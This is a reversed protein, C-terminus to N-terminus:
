LKIWKPNNSEFVKENADSHLKDKNSSSLERKMKILEQEKRIMEKIGAYKDVLMQNKSIEVELKNKLAALKNIDVRHEEHEIKIKDISSRLDSLEAISEAIYEKLGSLTTKEVEIEKEIEIRENIIDSSYNKTNYLLEKLAKEYESLKKETIKNNEETIVRQKYDEFINKSNELLKKQESISHMLDEFLNIQNKGLNLTNEIEELVSQKEEILRDKESIEVEKQALEKEVNSKKSYLENILTSYYQLIGTFRKASQGSGKEIDYKLQALYTTTEKLEKVVTELDIKEKLKDDVQSDIEKKLIRKREIDKNLIEFEEDLINLSYDLDSLRSTSIEISEKLQKLKDNGKQLQDLLDANEFKLRKLSGAASNSAETLSILKAQQAEIKINLELIIEKKATEDEILKKLSMKVESENSILLNKRKIEGDLGELIRNQDGIKQLLDSQQNQLQDIRTQLQESYKLKEDNQKGMVSNKNELLERSFTKRKEILGSIEDKKKEIESTLATKVRSSEIIKGSIEDLRKKLRATELIIENKKKEAIEIEKYIINKTRILNESNYSSSKDSESLVTGIAFLQNQESIKIDRLQKIEGSTKHIENNLRIKQNELLELTKATQDKKLSINAYEIRAKKMLEEFRKLREDKETLSEVLKKLEENESQIEKFRKSSLILVKQGGNYLL